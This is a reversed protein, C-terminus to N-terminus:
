QFNKSLIGAGLSVLKVDTSSFRNEKDKDFVVISGFCDGGSIIPVIIQNEALLEDGKCVHIIKGGEAISNLVSRRERITNALEESINKGVYEKFKNSSVSVIHDLDTVMCHNETIESIENCVTKVGNEISAVPSYKKFVLEEMNTFIELPDGERIRLTRRIEKPIVVRGLDDVRRVIGTEKM